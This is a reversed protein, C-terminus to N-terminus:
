KVGDVHEHGKCVMVKKGFFTVEVAPKNPCNKMYCKGKENRTNQSKSDRGM